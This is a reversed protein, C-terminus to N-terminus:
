FDSRGLLLDLKNNTRPRVYIATAASCCAGRLFPSTLSHRGKREADRDQEKELACKGDHTIFPVQDVAGILAFPAVAVCFSLPLSFSTTRTRLVHRKALQCIGVTSIIRPRPLVAKSGQLHEISRCRISVNCCRHAEKHSQLKQELCKVLTCM